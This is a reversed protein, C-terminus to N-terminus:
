IQVSIRYTRIQQAPFRRVGTADIESSEMNQLYSEVEAKEQKHREHMDHWIPDHSYSYVIREEVKFNTGETPLKHLLVKELQELIVAIRNENAAKNDGAEVQIICTSKRPNLTIDKKM